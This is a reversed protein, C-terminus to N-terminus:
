PTKAIIVGGCLGKEAEVHSSDCFPQTSSQGCRCLAIKDIHAFEEDDLKIYIDTAAVLIPGDKVLTIKPM